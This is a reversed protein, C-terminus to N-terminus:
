KGRSAGRLFFGNRFHGDTRHAVRLEQLCAVTTDTQRRLRERMEAHERELDSQPRYFDCRRCIMTGDGLSSRVFDHVKCLPRNM